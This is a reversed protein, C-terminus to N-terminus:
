YTICFLTETSGLREQLEYAYNKLRQYEEKPFEMWHKEYMSLGNGNEFLSFEAVLDDVIKYIEVDMSMECSGCNRKLSDGTTELEYAAKDCDYVQLKIKQEVISLQMISAGPENQWCIWEESSKKELLHLVAKLLIQPTNYDLYDSCEMDYNGFRVEFWGYQIANIKFINM